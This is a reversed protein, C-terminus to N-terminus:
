EAESRPHDWLGCMFVALLSFLCGFVFGAALLFFVGENM